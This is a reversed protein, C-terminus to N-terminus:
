TSHRYRSLIRNCLIPMFLVRVKVLCRNGLLCEQLVPEYEKMLFDWSHDSAIGCSEYGSTVSSDASTAELSDMSSSFANNTHFPSLRGCDQLIDDEAAESLCTGVENCLSNCSAWLETQSIRQVEGPLHFNINETKEVGGFQVTEKSERSGSAGATAESASNLSLQIFSFHSRFSDQLSSPGYSTEKNEPEQTNIWKDQHQACLREKKQSSAAEPTKEVADVPLLKSSWASIQPSVDGKHNIIAPSDSLIAAQAQSM